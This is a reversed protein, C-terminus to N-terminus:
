LEEHYFVFDQSIRFLPAGGDQEGDDIWQEGDREAPHFRWGTVEAAGRMEAQAVRARAAVADPTRAYHDMQVRAQEIGDCGGHTWEEVVSIQNLATAPFGDGRQLGFWSVRDDGLAATLRAVLAEQMAM